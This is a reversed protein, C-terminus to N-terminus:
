PTVADFDDGPDVAVGARFDSAPALNFGSSVSVALDKPFNKKGILKEAQAPSVLKMDYLDLKTAVLPELAQVIEAEPKSWTRIARKPVLKWDPHTAGAELEAQVSGRLSKIWGEVDLTDIRKLLEAKQEFTMMTAPPLDRMFTVPVVQQAAVVRAPCSNEAPCWKCWEGPVLFESHFTDAAQDALPDNAQTLELCDAAEGCRAAADTLDSAFDLLDLVSYTHSRIPGLPHPARPQIITTQVRDVHWGRPKAVTEIAGLAYIRLQENDKVEIPHGQGHKYDGVILLFLSPVYIVCDSTGWVPIGLPELTVQQELLLVHKDDGAITRAWDVYVQVADAMPKDVTFWEPKGNVEAEITEGIFDKADKGSRLAAEGVHHAVTGEAAYRSSHNPMHATFAPQGPCKMWRFAGSPSLKAHSRDNGAATQIDNM